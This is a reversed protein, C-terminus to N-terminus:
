RMEPHAHRPRPSLFLHDVSPRFGHDVGPGPHASIRDEFLTFCAGPTVGIEVSAQGFGAHAGLRAQEHSELIRAQGHGFQLGWADVPELRRAM